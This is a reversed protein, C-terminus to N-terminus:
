EARIISGFLEGAEDMRRKWKRECEVARSVRELHFEKWDQSGDNRESTVVKLTDYAECWKKHVLTCVEFMLDDTLEYEHKELPDRPAIPPSPENRVSQRTVNAFMGKGM